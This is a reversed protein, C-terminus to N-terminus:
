SAGGEVSAVWWARLAKAQGATLRGEFRKMTTNWMEDTVARGEAEIAMRIGADRLEGVLKSELGHQRAALLFDSEHGGYNETYDTVWVKPLVREDPDHLGFASRHDGLSADKIAQQEAPSAGAAVAERLERRAAEHGPAKPNWLDPNANAAKIRQEAPTLKAAAEARKRRGRRRQPGTAEHVEINPLIGRRPALLGAVFGADLLEAFVAEADAVVVHGFPRAAPAVVHLLHASIVVLSFTMVLAWAAAAEGALSGGSAASCRRWSNFRGPSSPM